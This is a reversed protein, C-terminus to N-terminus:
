LFQKFEDLITTYVDRKFPVISKVLQEKSSWRWRSFEPESTEINIEKDQGLYSFLFWKQKQGKFKGNWLQPVLYSPLDYKIWNKSEAILQVDCKGISTEEELERFAASEANEGDNIGGQPMQWANSKFDLRQGTFFEKKKNIVMLGVCARYKEQSVGNM